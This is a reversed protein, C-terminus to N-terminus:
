PAGAKSGLRWLRAALAKLGDILPDRSPGEFRKILRANRKAFRPTIKTRHSGFANSFGSVVLGVCLMYVIFLLLSGM